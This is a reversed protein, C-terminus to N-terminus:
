RYEKIRLNVGFVVLVAALLALLAIGPVLGGLASNAAAASREFRSQASAILQTLDENLRDALPAERAHSGVALSAAAAFHGHAEKAAIERHVGEYRALTVSLADFTRTSGSRLALSSAERLLGSSGDSPGLVHTVARFDAAYNDGGGRAILVLSEDSEARLLLVRTASFVEVSDSGNRQAKSLADQELVFGTLTWATMAVVAVSAAVLPVNFVRNSLWTLYVQSLALLVFVVLAAATVAVFTGSSVGADYDDSLRGAEVEYLRSAAPLIAERMVTSARRFYAAGVLLGQRNNARATEIYGSYLPLNTAIAAVAARAQASDGVERTLATLAATASRLDRLYRARRAVPELGGTLFTAAATASADALSSHLVDAQVLLPETRAAASHAADRRDRASTAGVVGAAIVAIALVAAMLQLRGPTTAVRDRLWWFRLQVPVGSTDIAQNAGSTM